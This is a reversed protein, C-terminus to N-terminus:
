IMKILGSAYGGASYAAAGANSAFLWRFGSNAYTPAASAFAGGNPVLPDGQNITVSSGFTSLLVSNVFGAIQVLGADNIAIDKVAVGLFGPYSGTSNALQAAMGDNSAGVHYAVPLGTTITQGIINNVSIFVKEQNKDGRSLQGLIM